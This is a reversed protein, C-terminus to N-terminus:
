TYSTTLSHRTLVESMMTLSRTKTKSTSFYAFLRKSITACRKIAPGVTNGDKTEQYLALASDSFDKLTKFSISVMDVASRQGDLTRRFVMATFANCSMSSNQIIAAAKCLRTTAENLQKIPRVQPRSLLYLVMHERRGSSSEGSQTPRYKYNSASASLSSTM